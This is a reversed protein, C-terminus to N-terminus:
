FRGISKGMLVIRWDEQSRRCKPSDTPSKAAQAALRASTHTQSYVEEAGIADSRLCERKIQRTKKVRVPIWGPDLGPPSESSFASASQRAVREM